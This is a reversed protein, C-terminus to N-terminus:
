SMKRSFFERKQGTLKMMMRSWSHSNFDKEQIQNIQLVCIYWPNKIVMEMAASSNERAFLPELM